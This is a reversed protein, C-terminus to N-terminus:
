AALSYLVGGALALRLVLLVHSLPAVVRRTRVLVLLMV